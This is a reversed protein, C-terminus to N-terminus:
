NCVLGFNSLTLALDSIDIDGDEDLDAFGCGSVCGFNALQVSLDSIDVDGDGDLDGLNGCGRNRFIRVVDAIEDTLVLDLDGDNDTDYMVSCSPNFIATFDQDFSFNGAGDNEYVLWDGGGFNSLVWDLDGDGDLDGLDTAVAHSSSALIQPAALTGGGGMLIAGNDSFSNACSVDLFGDGNVDGLGIMWVLGGASETDVLSFTGNGNGRLLRIDEDSRAGVVLDFIGDNDMDGASLGYEGNGGSDFFTPGSFVGAGNNTLLALNSSGTNATVLDWDADGDVDLAAMGHPTSGVSYVGQPAFTGDGNGLLVSATSDSSNATALDADGDNDYDGQENPSAETGVAPPPSLYDDVMGTGDALNLLIRVDESVENVTAFDVWGDENFDVAAGGYIRTQQPPTGRNSILQIETFDRAAPKVRVVFQYAYGSARYPTNDAARVDRSVNVTVVEGTRFPASPTLTATQNANSFTYTGAIPGSNRGFARFTAANISSTLMPQDFNLTIATNISVGGELRAPSTSLIQPTAAELAPTIVLLGLGLSRFVFGSTSLM